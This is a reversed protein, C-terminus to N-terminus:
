YRATRSRTRRPSPSGDDSDPPFQAPAITGPAWSRGAVALGNVLVDYIRDRVRPMEDLHYDRLWAYSWHLQELLVQARAMRADPGMWEFGPAEFLSCTQSVLQNYRGMVREHMPGSLARVDGFVVIPKHRGRRVQAQVDLYLDIMALLRAAPDYAESATAVLADIVAIGAEFCAVALDEKKKFYYTLGTASMDVAAAVEPMTLGKVGRENIVSTAAAVIARQREEFPSTVTEHM